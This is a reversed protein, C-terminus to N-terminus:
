QRAGTFNCPMEVSRPDDPRGATTVAIRTQCISCTVIYAGCRKAPYPLVVKCHNEDAHIAPIDIGNPYEPNPACQPERGSDIWEVTHHTM